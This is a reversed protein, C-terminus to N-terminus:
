TTDRPRWVRGTQAHYTEAATQHMKAFADRRLSLSASRNALRQLENAKDHSADQANKLDQVETALQDLDQNLRQVQGELMNVFEWMLPERQDALDSGDPALDRSIIQMAEELAALSANENWVPRTDLDNGFPAAGNSPLTDPTDPTTM